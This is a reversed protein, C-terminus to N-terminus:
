HKTFTIEMNYHLKIITNIIVRIKEIGVNLRENYPIHIFIVPYQKKSILLAWYYIYNCLYLGAFYSLSVNLKKRLELFIKRINLISRLYLPSKYNIPGIKLRNEIDRGFAINCGKQELHLYKSTHIGLLIVLKPKYGINLLLSKYSKVSEKWSVPLIKKKIQIEEEVQFNFNQVIEGSNNKTYKGFPGFGFLFISM